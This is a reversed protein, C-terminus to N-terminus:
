IGSAMDFMPMYMAILISGIIGGMIVIMIPEIISTLSEVAADVEDEYFDAVKKLMSSIDGTKEGVAIMHTVMPPFLNTEKLPDSISKGGTIKDVASLLGKEIVKNGATKATITLAQLIGVGSTLLTSLTQSFRSVATKLLMSGIVPIKLVIRDIVLKGNESAYYAKFGFFAGVLGIIIFLLNSKLFNSIGMVIQTPMPLEKGMSTFMEAFTPVVFILMIATAGATIVSLIIPYTMAGKVKRQLKSAKEQYEALRVLIGDLNGSAEGAAIMNCYLSDFIKNHKRLSDALTNGGQIDMSIQRLASQLVPVESQEALIDMCQVLPLGASTMAAFQRTFRSLDDVKVGGALIGLGTGEKQKVSTPRIGKKRLLNIVTNRDKGRLEGNVRKRGNEVGAYVFVPM